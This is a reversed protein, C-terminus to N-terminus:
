DRQGRLGSKNATLINGCLGMVVQNESLGMIGNLEKAVRFELGAIENVRDQLM